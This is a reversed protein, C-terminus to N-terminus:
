FKKQIQTMDRPVRKKEIEQLKRLAELNKEKVMERSFIETMIDRENKQM